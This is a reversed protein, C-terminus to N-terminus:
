RLRITELNMPARSEVRFMRHIASALGICKSEEGHVSIVREPKPSLRRVYNLLQVRDSHGSFGEITKVGMNIKVEELRGREGRMPVERWGKQIRRGLSGESQYGVFVLANRPDPALCKFYEMVPGGTMMGATSIVVGPEGGIVEARQDPGKVKVFIDSLFPNSESRFILERLERSLYEPYATHIATAEWIMGDLYVPISDLLGRRSYDELLVMIEQARGVAFAPVIVKGGQKVTEVVIRMFEEEAQNRRPMVDQPAGYTSDIILTEARPFSYVAPSFLRTRDFKLDGTYVVNYAGEGIHFHVISSGLIHGANHMTVRIDPAIDTVEGYNLTIVHTLFTSIDHKDYPLLKDEREAIEVYDLQLLVSLDRAPPTCYVPGESGQKFLFPIYGCHDLHAHTLIVADLNEPDAEPVELYPFARDESAVNVGCDIMVKSEPTQLLYCSRGVERAGGLATIRVWDGKASKL